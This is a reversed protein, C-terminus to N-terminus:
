RADGRDAFAPMAAYRSAQAREREAADQLAREVLEALQLGSVAGTAARSSLAGLLGYLADWDGDHRVYRRGQETLGAPHPRRNFRHAAATIRRAPTATATGAETLLESM